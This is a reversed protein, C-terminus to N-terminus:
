TVRDKPIEQTVGESIGTIHTWRTLVVNWCNKDLARIHSRMRIKWYQYNTRNFTPPRGLAFYKTPDM